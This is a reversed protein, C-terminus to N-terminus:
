RMPRDIDRWSVPFERAWFPGHLGKYHHVADKFQKPVFYYSPTEGTRVYEDSELQAHYGRMRTIFGTFTSYYTQRTCFQSLSFDNNAHPTRALLVYGKIPYTAIFIFVSSKVYGSFIEEELPLGRISCEMSIKISPEWKM